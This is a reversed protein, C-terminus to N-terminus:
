FWGILMRFFETGSQRRYYLYTAGDVTKIFVLGDGAMATGSTYPYMGGPYMKGEDLQFYYQRHTADKQIYIRNLTDYACSSGTTFTESGPYYTITTWGPTGISYCYISYSAGGRLAYLKDANFGWTWCLHCGAGPASLIPNAMVSWSNGAISYRYFPTANNGILYIYDDNGAVNYTSCTHVLSGDTGWIAPLTAVSRSTWVNTAIDYYGFGCQTTYGNLLWIRGEAGQSPDFVMCTGAGWTGSGGLAGPSALLEFSDTWTDYRYFAAIGAMIYVFRNTGREDTCICHGAAATVPIFRLWQYVPLDIGKKLNLTVPM